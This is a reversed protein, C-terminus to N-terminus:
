QMRAFLAHNSPTRGTASSPVRTQRYLRSCHKARMSTKDGTSPKDHRRYTGNVVM